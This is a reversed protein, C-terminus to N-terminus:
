LGGGVRNGGAEQPLTVAPVDLRRADANIASLEGTRLDRWRGLQTQLASDYETFVETMAPVPATDSSELLERLTEFQENLQVPFRLTGETSKVDVAVLKREIETLQAIATLDFYNQAPIRAAVPNYIGEFQDAFLEADVPVDGIHRWMLSLSFGSRSLWTARLNHRWRPLPFGCVAGYLGACDFATALGGNDIIFHHNWTGQFEFNASGIAGLSHTYTSGIDIGNTKLAGINAETDDVFPM